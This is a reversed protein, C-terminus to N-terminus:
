NSLINLTKTLLIMYLLKGLSFMKDFKVSPSPINKSVLVKEFFKEQTTKHQPQVSVITSLIKYQRYLVSRYLDDKRNYFIYMRILFYKTLVTIFLNM